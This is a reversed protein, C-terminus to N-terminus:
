LVPMCPQVQPPPPPSFPYQVKQFVNGYACLRLKAGGGGQIESAVIKCGRAGSELHLGPYACSLDSGGGGDSVWWMVCGQSKM